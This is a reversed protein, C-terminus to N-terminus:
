NDTTALVADIYNGLGVESKGPDVVQGEVLTGAIHRRALKLADRLISIEARGAEFNQDEFGTTIHGCETCQHEGM